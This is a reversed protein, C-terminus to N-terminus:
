SCLSIASIIPHEIPLLLDCNCLARMFNRSRNFSLLASFAARLHASIRAASLLVSDMVRRFQNPCSFLIRQAALFPKILELAPFYDHDFIVYVYDIKRVRAFEIENAHAIM